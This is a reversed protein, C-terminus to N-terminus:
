SGLTSVTSDIVYHEKNTQQQQQKQKNTIKIHKPLMFDFIVHHYLQGSSFVFRKVSSSLLM